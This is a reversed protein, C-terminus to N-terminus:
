TVPIPESTPCSASLVTTALTTLPVVIVKDVSGPIEPAAFRVNADSSDPFKVLRAVVDGFPDPAVKM